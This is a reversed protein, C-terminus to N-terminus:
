GSKHKKLFPQRKKQENKKKQQPKGKGSKKQGNQGNQKTKQGGKEKKEGKKEGKKEEKEEKDDKTVPIDNSIKKFKAVYFGDMNHTHPYFRRTLEMSPHFQERRYNKFGPTGFELGTPVLKVNRKRLAYQVVSENEEVSISCTSYVLYGGTPSAANISDIAALILQKQEYACRVFDEETQAKQSKVSVDRAIVGLGTCPADLLIRDFGGMTKPFEQGRLNTVIVNRVGLRHLNANLSKTRDKNIDNAILTGTNKMLAAIYSTKGGPAACMDLVKEQEQPALAMVPAFSSASQLIYHGALYEPTAGVPIQSEFIQLGVKSWKIPQLNVGRNVLSQMLDSRRAKLTNTRITVPRPTENAEFLAMAEEPKFMDMLKACLFESYGFYTCIDERLQRTYDQRSREPDRLNNFDSLIKIIEQIRLNVVSLDVPGLGTPAMIDDDDGGINMTLEDEAEEEEEQRERRLRESKEVLEDDSEEEDSSGEMDSDEEDDDEEDDEDLKRKKEKLWGQNEDSFAKKFKDLNKEVKDSDDDDFFSREAESDSDSDTGDEKEIVPEVKKPSPAKKLAPKLASKVAVVKKKAVAGRSVVGPM